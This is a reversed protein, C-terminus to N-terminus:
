SDELVGRIVSPAVRFEDAMAFVPKYGEADQIETREYENLTRTQDALYADAVSGGFALHMIDYIPVSRRGIKVRKWGSWWTTSMIKGTKLSRVRGLSSVEHTVCGFVRAWQEDPM